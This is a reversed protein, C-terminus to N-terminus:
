KKSYKKLIESKPTSKQISKQISKKLRKTVWFRGWYNATKKKVRGKPGQSWSINSSWCLIGLISYTKLKQHVFWSSLCSVTFNFKQFWSWGFIPNKHRKQVCAAVQPDFWVIKVDLTLAINFAIISVNKKPDLKPPPWFKKNVTPPKKLALSYEPAWQSTGRKNLFDFMVVLMKMCTLRSGIESNINSILLM